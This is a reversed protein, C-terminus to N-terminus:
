LRRSKKGKEEKQRFTPITPSPDESQYPTYFERESKCQGGKKIIIIFFLSLAQGGFAGPALLQLHCEAASGWVPSCYEIITLVFACYCRLFASTDVFLRKVLRLIGIRQSVRCVIGRGHDEFIFQSDFKMGLIYLNPCARISVGSLVLDGHPPSVTRSRGVVLAKTKNPNLIMCWHDCWEQIRSFDWILSAAVVPRDALKRAVALLTSDDAYVFLRNEVQKSMENTYLSFLLPGLM